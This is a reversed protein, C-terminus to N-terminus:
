PERSDGQVDQEPDRARSSATPVGALDAASQTGVATPATVREDEIVRRRAVKRLHLGLAPVYVAKGVLASVRDLASAAVAVAPPVQVTVALGAALAERLGLGAPFIGIASALVTASGITVAEAISASQSIAAFSLAVRLAAALTSAMEIVLLEAFVRRWPGRRRLAVASGVLIATGIAILVAGRPAFAPDTLLAVGVLGLTAGIWIIGAIANVSLASGLSSGELKLAATRVAVAGPAPLYNALSAALSVQLANELTIRHGAAKAISRYEFANLLPTMAGILAIAVMFLPRLEVGEPLNRFSVVAMGAFMAFAVLLLWRKAQPRSAWARTALMASELRQFGKTTFV